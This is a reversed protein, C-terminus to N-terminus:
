NLITQRLDELGMKQAKAGFGGWLFLVMEMQPRGEDLNQFFATVLDQAYLVPAGGAMGPEWVLGAKGLELSPLYSYYILETCVMRDISRGDFNYDYPKGIHSFAQAIALAKDKKSLHPRFAVLSDRAFALEVTALSVGSSVAQVIELQGDSIPSEVYEAMTKPFRAALYTPLDGCQLNEVRCIEEFASVTEPDGAFYSRMKEYNGIYIMSHTWFGTFVLNSLQGTQQVLAIDGPEMSSAAKERARPTIASTHPVNIWGGFKLIPSKLYEYVGDFKGSYLYNHRQQQLTQAALSFGAALELSNEYIQRVGEPATELYTRLVYDVESRNTAFDAVTPDFVSRLTIHKGNEPVPAPIAQALVEDIADIFENKEIGYEPHSGIFVAGLGPNSSIQTLVELWLGFYFASGAITGISEEPAVSYIPLGGTRILPKLREVQSKIQVFANLLQGRDQLNYIYNEKGSGKQVLPVIAELINQVKASVQERISKIEYLEIRAGVEKAQAGLTLCVFSAMAFAIGRKGM